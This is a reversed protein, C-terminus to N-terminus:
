LDWNQTDEERWVRGEEEEEEGEAQRLRKALVTNCQVRCFLSSHLELRGVNREELFWFELICLV